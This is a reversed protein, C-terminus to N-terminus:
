KKIIRHYYVGIATTVKVNYIGSPLSQLNIQKSGIVNIVEVGYMNYISINNVEDESQVYLVDDVPNPYLATYVKEISNIGTTSQCVYKGKTEISKIIDYYEVNWKKKTANSANTALVIDKGDNSEENLLPYIVGADKNSRNPLQCYIKDLAETTFNNNYCMIEKLNINKSVDLSRIKNDSCKLNILGTNGSINLSELSNNECRLEELKESKSVDISTIKNKYCDVFVLEVNNSLDLTTLSNNYCILKKLKTNKSLDLSAINNQACNIQILETNNSLDLSAINNSYCYFETLQPNHSIDINTVNKTNDTCSIGSINGYISITNAETHYVKNGTWQSDVTIIDERDGNKVKLKTGDTDAILNINIDKGKETAITIYRSMNVEQAKIHVNITTVWFAIVAVFLVKKM